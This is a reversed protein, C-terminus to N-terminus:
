WMTRCWTGDCIVLYLERHQVAPDWPKDVGFFYKADILGLSGIGWVGEGDWQCAFTQEGLGHTEKSYLTEHTNYILSIM